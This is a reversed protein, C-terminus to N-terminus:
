VSLLSRPFMLYEILYFVLSCHLKIEKILLYVFFIVRNEEWSLGCILFVWPWALVFLFLSNFFVSLVKKRLIARGSRCREIRGGRFTKSVGWRYRWSRSVVLGRVFWPNVHTRLVLQGLVFPLSGPRKGM